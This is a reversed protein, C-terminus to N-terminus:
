CTVPPFTEQTVPNSSDGIRTTGWYIPNIVGLGHGSNFVLMESDYHSGHGDVGCLVFVVGGLSMQDASSTSTPITRTAVVIPPVPPVADRGADELLRDCNGDGAIRCLEDFDGSRALGVLQELMDRAENISPITGATPASSSCAVALAM